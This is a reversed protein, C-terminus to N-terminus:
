KMVLNMVPAFKRINKWNEVCLGYINVNGIAYTFLFLNEIWKHGGLFDAGWFKFVVLLM